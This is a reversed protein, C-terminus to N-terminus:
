GALDDGCGSADATAQEVVWCDASTRRVSVGEQSQTGAFTRM